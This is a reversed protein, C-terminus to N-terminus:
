QDMVPGDWGSRELFGALVHINTIVLSINKEEFLDVTNFLDTSRLGLSRCAELYAEINEMQKFSNGRENIKPVIGPYVKNMLKCLLVGDSLNTYIDGDLNLSLVTGIWKLAKKELVPDHKAQEKDALDRDLGRAFDPANLGVSNIPENSRSAGTFLPEVKKVKIVVPADVKQLLHPGSYGALRGALQGLALLNVLVVNMDKEEYLDIAVFLSSEPLGLARCGELYNSINEMHQFALKGKHIKAITKPRLTNVLRCLISGDHLWFALPVESQPAPENLVEAIWQRVRGDLEADYKQAQKKKISDNLSEV